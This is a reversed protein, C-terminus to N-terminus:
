QAQQFLLWAHMARLREGLVLELGIGLGAHVLVFRPVLVVYGHNRKWALQDRGLAPVELGHM